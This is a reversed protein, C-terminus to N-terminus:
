VIRKTPLTLHTYSVPLLNKTNLDQYSPPINGGWPRPSSTMCRSFSLFFLHHHYYYYHVLVYRCLCIVAIVIALAAVVSCGVIIATVCVCVYLNKDVHSSISFRVEWSKSGRLKGCGRLVVRRCSNSRALIHIYVCVCECM